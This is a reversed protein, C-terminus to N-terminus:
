TAAKPKLNPTSFMEFVEPRMSTYLLDRITVVDRGPRRPTPSADYLGKYREYGQPPNCLRAVLDSLLDRAKKRGIASM